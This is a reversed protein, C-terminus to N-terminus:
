CVGAAISNNVTELRAAITELTRRMSEPSSYKQAAKKEQYTGIDQVAEFFKEFLRGARYYGITGAEGKFEKLVKEM